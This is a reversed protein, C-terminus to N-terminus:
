SKGGVLKLHPALIADNSLLRGLKSRTRHLQAKITGIPRGTLEHLEQLTLGEVDHLSVLSCSERGLIAMAKLVQEVRKERDVVDEPQQTDGGVGDPDISEAGTEAKAMASRERSRRVDIFQHYLVKLLWAYPYEIQEFDDFRLFAKICVEQVLDEADAPSLTMRRAASYLGDFHPRM